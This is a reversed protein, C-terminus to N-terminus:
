RQRWVSRDPIGLRQQCAEIEKKFRAADQPYGATPRLGPVQQRWFANWALMALERLYKSMMSALAVPLVREAKELFRFEVRGGAPGWHYVSRAASEGFIEVLYDPFVAQLLDAYRQRGGHKDCVVLAAQGDPPPLVAKILEMTLTSLVTAKNGLRDLWANFREPSVAVSRMALLRVGARELGQLFTEALCDLSDAAHALPLALQFDRYWPDRNLEDSNEPALAQWAERWHAPRLGIARLGTLVGCELNKLSGGPKYLAKSDAIPVRVPRTKPHGERSVVDSLLAYWDADRWDDPAQWLTASIVLPGLNPGYGAEDTGILNVM